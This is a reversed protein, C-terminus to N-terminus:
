RKGKHLEREIDRRVQKEKLSRRKDYQRKGRALGLEIKAYGRKFYISLPILTFGKQKLKIDLHKIELKHLLLKRKRIPDIEERSFEYPNIHMNYIFVEDGEIKAFSGKLNANGRRLSKVENGFLQVGAEFRKEIFYDRLAKRNTIVPENKAM